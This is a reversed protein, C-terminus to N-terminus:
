AEIKLRLPASYPEMSSEDQFKYRLEITTNLFPLLAEKPIQLEIGTLKEMEDEADDWTGTDVEEGAWEPQEPDNGLIAYVSWNSAFDSSDPVRVILIDPLLSLQLTTEESQLSSLQALTPAAYNMLM